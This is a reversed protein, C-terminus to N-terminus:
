PIFFSCYNRVSQQGDTVVTKDKDLDYILGDTGVMQIALIQDVGLGLKPTIQSHGGGLAWGTVSVSNVAAGMIVRSASDAQLLDFPLFASNRIHWVQCFKLCFLFFRNIKSFNFKQSISNNTKLSAALLCKCWFNEMLFARHGFVVVILRSQTSFSFVLTQLTLALCHSFVFFPSLKVATYADGWTVGPGVTMCGAPNASCTTQTQISNMRTLILLFSGNGTNRGIFEHGTLPSSYLMLYICSSCADGHTFTNNFFTFSGLFSWSYVVRLKLTDCVSQAIYGHSIPRICSLCIIIMHPPCVCSLCTEGHTFTNKTFHVFINFSM